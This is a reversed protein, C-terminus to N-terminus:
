GIMDLQQIKIAVYQGDVQHSEPLGKSNSQNELQNVSSWEDTISNGRMIGIFSENSVKYVKKSQPFQKDIAEDIM